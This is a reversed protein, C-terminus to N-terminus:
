LDQVLERAASIALADEALAIAPDPLFTVRAVERRLFWAGYSAAVAAAAGVAAGLLPADERAALAGVLGGILGRGVLSGSAIRDQTGPLKDVLLEGAAAVTLGAAVVDKALWAELPGQRRRQIWGDPRDALERAAMAVGTMSRMGTVAGLGVATAIWSSM